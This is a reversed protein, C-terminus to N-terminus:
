GSALPEHPHLSKSQSDCACRGGAASPLSHLSCTGTPLPPESGGVPALVGQGLGDVTDVPLGPGPFLYFVSVERDDWSEAWIHSSVKHLHLLASVLSM